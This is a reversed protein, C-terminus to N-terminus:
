AQVKKLIENLIERNKEQERTSVKAIILKDLFELYLQKEDMEQKLFVKVLWKEGNDKVYGTLKNLMLYIAKELEEKTAVDKDVEIEIVKLEKEKEEMTSM